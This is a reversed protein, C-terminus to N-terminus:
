SRRRAATVVASAESNRFYPSELHVNLSYLSQVEGPRQWLASVWNNGLLEMDPDEEIARQLNRRFLEVTSVRKGNMEYAIADSGNVGNVSQFFFPPRLGSAMLERPGTGHGPRVDQIHLFVGGPKLAKKIESVAQPVRQTADLSSLGTASDLSGDFGLTEKIRLYSGKRINSVPHRRKNEALAQPNLDVQTWAAKNVVGALLEEVMFGTAGCGFDCGNDRSLGYTRAAWAGIAQLAPKVKQRTRDFCLSSAEASLGAIYREEGEASVSTFERLAEASFTKRELARARFLIEAVDTVPKDDIILEFGAEQARQM